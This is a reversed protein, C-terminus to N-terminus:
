RLVSVSFDVYLHSNIEYEKYLMQRNEKEFGIEEWAEGQLHKSESSWSGQGKQLDEIHGTASCM